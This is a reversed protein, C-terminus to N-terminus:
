FWNLRVEGEGVNNSIEECNISGVKGQCVSVAVPQADEFELSIIRLM